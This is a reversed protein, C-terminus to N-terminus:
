RDSLRERGDWSKQTLHAALRVKRNRCEAVLRSLQAESWSTQVGDSSEVLKKAAYVHVANVQGRIIARILMHRQWAQDPIAAVLRCGYGSMMSTVQAKSLVLEALEGRSLARQLSDVEADLIGSDLLYEDV